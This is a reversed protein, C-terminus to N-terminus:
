KKSPLAKKNNSHFKITSKFQPQITFSSLTLTNYNDLFAPLGQKSPGSDCDEGVASVVDVTRLGIM